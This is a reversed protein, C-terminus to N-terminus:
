ALTTTNKKRSVKMEGYIGKLWNIMSTVEDYSMLSMKLDDVHWMVTHKGQVIENAACPPTM